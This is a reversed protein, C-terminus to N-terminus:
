DTVTAILEDEYYMPETVGSPAHRPSAKLFFAHVRLMGNVMQEEDTALDKVKESWDIREEELSCVMEDYPVHMYRLVVHRTAADFKADHIRIRSLPPVDKCSNIIGLDKEEIQM